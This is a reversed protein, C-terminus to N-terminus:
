LDYAKVTVRGNGKTRAVADDLIKEVKKSLADVVESSTQCKKGKIYDKVKSTVILVESM